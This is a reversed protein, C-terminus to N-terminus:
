FVQVVNELYFFTAPGGAFSTRVVPGRSAVGVYGNMSWRPNIRYDASAEFVNM